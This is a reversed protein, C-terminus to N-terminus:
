IKALRRQAREYKRMYRDYQENLMEIKNAIDYKIEFIDINSTYQPNYVCNEIHHNYDIYKNYKFQEKNLAFQIRCLRKRIYDIREKLVTKEM